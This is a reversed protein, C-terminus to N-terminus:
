TALCAFVVQTSCAVLLEFSCSCGYIPWLDRLRRGVSRNWNWVPCVLWVFTEKTRIFEQTFFSEALQGILFRSTDLNNRLHMYLHKRRFHYEQKESVHHSSWTSTCFLPLIDSLNQMIISDFKWFSNKRMTRYVLMAATFDRLFRTTILHDTSHRDRICM